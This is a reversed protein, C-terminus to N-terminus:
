SRRCGACTGDAGCRKDRGHCVCECATCSDCKPALSYKGSGVGILTLLSVLLLLEFQFGTFPKGLKTTIFVGLMVIALATAAVPTWIGLLIAVGGLTEITAVVWAVVSSLGIHQFFAITANMDMFKHIGSYIFITAITVRLLLIGFDSHKPCRATCTNKKM